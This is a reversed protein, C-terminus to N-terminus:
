RHVPQAGDLRRELLLTSVFQGDKFGSETLVGVDTFGCKHHIAISADNPLAVLAYCRHFGLDALRDILNPYLISGIGTGTATPALIVTTEPTRAYAPKDRWPGSWAGGVVVGGREAVLVPYGLAVRERLWDIRQEDAWPRTDFSVLSDVIYANYIENIAHCDEPEAPRVIVEADIM